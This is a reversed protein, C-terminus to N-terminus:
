LHITLSIIWSEACSAESRAAQSERFIATITGYFIAGYITTTISARGYVPATM